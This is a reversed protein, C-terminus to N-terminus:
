RIRSSKSKYFGIIFCGKADVFGTVWNPNLKYKNM